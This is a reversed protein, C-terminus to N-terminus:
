RTPFLDLFFLLNPSSYSNLEKHNLYIGLYTDPIGVNKRHFYLALALSTLRPTPQPSASISSPPKYKTQTATHSPPVTQFDQSLLLTRFVRFDGSVTSISPSACRTFQLWFLVTSPIFSPGQPPLPYQPCTHTHTAIDLGMQFKLQHTHGPGNQLCRHPLLARVRVSCEWSMDQSHEETGRAQKEDGLGQAEAPDQQHSPVSAELRISPAAWETRVEASRKGQEDVMQGQVRSQVEALRDPGSDQRM